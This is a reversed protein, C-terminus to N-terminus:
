QERALLFLTVASSTDGMCWTHFEQQTCDQRPFPGLHLTGFSCQGSSSVNSSGQMKSSTVIIPGSVWFLVLFCCFHEDALGLPGEGRWTGGRGAREKLGM